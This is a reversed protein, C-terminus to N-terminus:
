VVSKRDVTGSSSVVEGPVYQLNRDAAEVMALARAPTLILPFPTTPNDAQAHSRAPSTLAALLAFATLTWKASRHSRGHKM